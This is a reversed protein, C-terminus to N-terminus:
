ASKELSDMKDLIELRRKELRRLEAVIKRRGDLNSIKRLQRVVTDASEDLTTYDELLGDFAKKIENAM